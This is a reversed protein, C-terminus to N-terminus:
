DASEVANAYYPHGVLQARRGDILEGIARIFEATSEGKDRQGFYHERMALRQEKFADQDILEILLEVVDNGPQGDIVPCAGSIPADRNMAERDNRRDTLILPREPRLYLFDLGVSSVDAVLADVDGFLALIDETLAVVHEGGHANAEELSALISLHANKVGADTSNRIRPHPKYIVRTAPEALLREIVQAGYLDMSTYNNASNEGEWTPAYMVTRGEFAPLISAYDVDLQPRGVPLLRREDFDMLVARHRELAANGAIMVYDYAKAQNSVMSLKDSEGHNIHVHVLRSSSLSQFNAVGNNVYLCLSFDNADYLTVLDELRRVYIKPLTTLDAFHRMTAVKRFVLLVPREQHLRELVPLWQRLQYAKTSVDSFYVVIQGPIPVADLEHNGSPTQTLGLANRVKIGTKTRVAKRAKGIAWSKLRM